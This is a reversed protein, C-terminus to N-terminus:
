IIYSQWFLISSTSIKPVCQHRDQALSCHISVTMVNSTESLLQIYRESVMISMLAAVCGAASWIGFPIQKSQEVSLM